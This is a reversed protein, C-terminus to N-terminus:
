KPRTKYTSSCIAQLEYKNLEDIHKMTLAQIEQHVDIKNDKCFVTLTLLEHPSLPSLQQIYGKFMDRRNFYLFKLKYELPIECDLVDLTDFLLICQNTFESKDKPFYQLYESKMEYPSKYKYSSFFGYTEKSKNVLFNTTEFNRAKMALQLLEDKNEHLNIKYEKDKEFFKRLKYLNNCALKINDHHLEMLYLFKDFLTNSGYYIIAKLFYDNHIDFKYKTIYEEMKDENQILFRVFPKYLKNIDVNKFFSLAFEINNKLAINLFLENYQPYEELLYQLIRKANYRLAYTFFYMINGRSANSLLMPMKNVQDDYLILHLHNYVCQKQEYLRNRFEM